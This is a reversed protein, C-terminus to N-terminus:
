GPLPKEMYAYPQTSANASAWKDPESASIRQTVHDSAKKPTGVRGSWDHSPGWVNSM